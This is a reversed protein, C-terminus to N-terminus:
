LDDVLANRITDFSNVSIELVASEENAVCTQERVTYQKQYIWEEGIFTGIGFKGLSTYQM